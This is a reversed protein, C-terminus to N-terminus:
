AQCRQRDGRGDPLTYPRRLAALYILAKESMTTLDYYASEPLANLVSEILYSKGGSSPGKVAVNVQKDLLRSVLALYLLRIQNSEGAVGNAHLTTAFDATINPRSALDACKEWAENAAKERARRRDEESEPAQEDLGLAEALKGALGPVFTELTPGGTVDEDGNRLKEYTSRVVGAISRETEATIPNSLRGRAEIILNLADDEDVGNRGLFGALPLGAEHRVGPEPYNQALVDATAAFTEESLFEPSGTHKETKPKRLEKPLVPLSDFDPIGAVWEKGSSPPVMVYGGDAKIDCKSGVLDAISGSEIKGDKPHRHWFHGGRRSKVDERGYKARLTELADDDDADVVALDNPLGTALGVGYFRGEEHWKRLQDADATAACPFVKYGKAALALAGELIEASRAGQNHTSTM